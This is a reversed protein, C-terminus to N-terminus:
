PLGRARRGIAVPLECVVFGFLAIVGIAQAWGAERNSHVPFNTGVVAERNVRTHHSALIFTHPACRKGKRVVHGVRERALGM